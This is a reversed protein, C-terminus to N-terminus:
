RSVEQVLGGVPQATLREIEILQLHFRAAADIAEIEIDLLQRHADALELFSFRGARYGDQTAQLMEQAQSRIRQQLAVAETRAHVLEQYLSFLTSHLDLRRSQETLALASREAQVARIELDARRASGLPLAVGAVLAADDLAELRRVGFNFTMTPRRQAEALRTRADLVRQGSAFALLDPNDDLRRRYSEFSEPAQTRFLSGAVASFPPSEDGWLTSLAVAASRLEHEAHEQEIRIRSLAIEARSSQVPSAAGATVRQRVARGSEEALAVARRTAELREQRALVNVFRRAVEALVDARRARQQTSLHGLEEDGVQRRRAAKGGFEIARSLQLTSELADTGSLEGSGAFNELQLEILTNPTLSAIAAQEGAAASQMSLAALEPNRQGALEIAERLTLTNSEAASCALAWCTMVCAGAACARFIRM